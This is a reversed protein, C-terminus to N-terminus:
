ARRGVIATGAACRAASRCPRCAPAAQMRPHRADLRDEILAAGRDEVAGAIRVRLRECKKPSSTQDDAFVVDGCVVPQSPRYRSVSGDGTSGSIPQDAVRSVGRVM